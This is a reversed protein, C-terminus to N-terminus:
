ADLCTHRAKEDVHGIVRDWELRTDLVARDRKRLSAVDALLDDDAHGGATPTPDRPLQDPQPNSADRFRRLGAGSEQGSVAHDARDRTGHPGWTTAIDDSQAISVAVEGRGSCGQVDFRIAFPSRNRNM